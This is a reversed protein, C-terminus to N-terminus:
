HHLVDPAVSRSGPKGLWSCCSCSTHRALDTHFCKITDFAREGDTGGVAYIHKGRKLLPLTPVHGQGPFRNRALRLSGSSVRTASLPSVLLLTAFLRLALPNSQVLSFACHELLARANSSVLHLNSGSLAHGFWLGFDTYSFFALAKVLRVTALSASNLGRFDSPLSHGVSSM